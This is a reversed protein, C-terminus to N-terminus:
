DALEKGLVTGGALAGATGMLRRMRKQRRQRILASEVQAPRVGLLKALQRRRFFGLRATKVLEDTFGYNFADM